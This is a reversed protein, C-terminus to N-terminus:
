VKRKKTKAQALSLAKDVKKDLAKIANLTHGNMTVLDIMKGDPAASEGMAANVDQAMPGVHSLGGDDAISGERYKWSESEPIRRIMSLSLEPDVTERDEKIDEDSAAMLAYGAIAGAGAWMGSERQADAQQSMGYANLQSNYLSNASSGMRAAGAGVSDYGAYIGQASQNAANIGALGNNVSNQSLNAGFTPYGSLASSARDTLTYGEQRAATRASNGAAAKASALGLSSQNEMAAFNGSNPNIGIRTKSRNMGAQALGAQTGVDAIATNAMEEQKQETSFTNADSIMRDQLGTLQGRRELAYTRDERSDNYATNAAMLGFQMQEMQLPLLAEQAASMGETASSQAGLADIQAQVLAPDPPPTGGGGGHLRMGGGARPQFADMPLFDFDTRHWNSM